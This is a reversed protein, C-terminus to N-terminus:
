KGGVQKKLAELDLQQKLNSLQGGSATTYTQKKGYIGEDFTTPDRQLNNLISNYQDYIKEAKMSLINKKSAEKSLIVFLNDQQVRSM